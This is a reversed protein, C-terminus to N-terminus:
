RSAIRIRPALGAIEAARAKVEADTGFGYRAWGLAEQRVATAESARGSLVLAEAKMLLLQALLAANEAQMAVPINADVIRLVSPADGSSLAYAALQMAVHAAHIRTEPREAYIQESRLFSALALDPEAAISLRGLIYLSFARRNDNWGQQAAIAVATKAAQRRRTSPTRPGLATEVASIWERPTDSGQAIGGGDRGAPNLRALIAPLRAAVELRSMGSHLEPAYTVRLMLMDFGTLVANFNDDNFVSDPLRYLDNLPGLAQALEEHLCDRIEQPSVNGPIFIAMKTRTTLTTWDATATRRTAIYDSWSSIRPSVFCAAQPVLRQLEAQPVTAITISADPSTTRRIDLGAENRMRAIVRDLDPILTAPAAGEVRVTVPGEFRTFVPLSRGSELQFSLDLFDAAIQSNSRTPRAVKGDNFQRMAPLATEPPAIARSAPSADPPRPGCATLALMALLTIRAMM